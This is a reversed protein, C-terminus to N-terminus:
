RRAEVAKKKKALGGFDERVVLWMATVGVVDKVNEESLVIEDGKISTTTSSDTNSQSRSTARFIGTAVPMYDTSVKVQAIVRPHHPAPYLTAVVIGEGDLGDRRRNKSKKEDPRATDDEEKRGPVYIRCVWPTESDEPDSEEGDDHNSLRTPARVSPAPSSSRSTTMRDESRARELVSRRATQQQAQLPGLPLSTHHDDSMSIMSTPRSSEASPVELTEGFNTSAVSSSRIPMPITGHPTSRAGSGDTRSLRGSKGKGRSWEFVVESGEPSAGVVPKDTSAFRAAWSPPAIMTEQGGKGAAWKKVTFTYGMPRHLSGEGLSADPATSVMPYSGFTHSAYQQNPVVSHTSVISNRAESGHFVRTSAPSLPSLLREASSAVFSTRAPSILGSGTAVDRSGSEAAADKKKFLRGFFQKTKGSTPAATRDEQELRAMLGAPAELSARKNTSSPGAASPTSNFGWVKDEHEPSGTDSRTQHPTLHPLRNDLAYPHWIEAPELSGVSHIDVARKLFQKLFLSTPSKIVDISLSFASRVKAVKEDTGADTVSTTMVNHVNLNYMPVIRKGRKNTRVSGGSTSESLGSVGSIGSVASVNSTVSAQSVM